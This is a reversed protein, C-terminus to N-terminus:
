MHSYGAHPCPLKSRRDISPVDATNGKGGGTRGSHKYGDTDQLDDDWRLMSSTPLPMMGGSTIVGECLWDVVEEFFEYSERDGNFLKDEIRNYGTSNGEIDSVTFIGKTTVPSGIGTKVIAPVAKETFNLLGFRATANIGVYSVVGPAAELVAAIMAGSTYGTMVNEALISSFEISSRNYGTLKDCENVQVTTCIAATSAAM